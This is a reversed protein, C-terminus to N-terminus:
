NIYGTASPGGARRCAVCLGDHSTVLMMEPEGCRRCDDVFVVPLLGTFREFDAVSEIPGIEDLLEYKILGTSAHAILMGDMKYFHERTRGDFVLYAVYGSELRVRSLTKAM